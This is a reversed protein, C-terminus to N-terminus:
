LSTYTFAHACACVCVFVFVRRGAGAWTEPQQCMMLARGLPHAQGKSQLLGLWLYQGPTLIFKNCIASCVMGLTFLRCLQYSNKPFSSVAWLSVRPQTSPLDTPACPDPCRKLLARCCGHLCRPSSAHSLSM